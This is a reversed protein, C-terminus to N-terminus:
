SAGGAKMWALVIQKKTRMARADSGISPACCPTERCEEPKAAHIRCRNEPTLFVCPAPTFAAGYSATKRRKDVGTKRPAYCYVTKGNTTSDGTWFERIIFRAKFMALDMGLLAAAKEVEGPAFWGPQRKCAAVCHKCACGKNRSM